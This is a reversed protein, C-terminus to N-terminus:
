QGSWVIMDLPKLKRKIDEPSLGEIDVGEGFYVMKSTNRPTFGNTAEYMLGSCDCGELRWLRKESLNFNDSSAYLEILRSIGNNYNGGWCYPNGTVNDLFELIEERSPLIIKRPHPKEKKLEVFRSDIFLNVDYPYEETIVKFIKYKGYDYEGLLEFVTGPLAIFELESICGKKDTKVFKGNDGGFVIRFDHTNLVPTPESAVAFLFDQSLVKFASFMILFFIFVSM